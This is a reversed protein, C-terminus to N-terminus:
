FEKVSAANGQRFRSFSHTVSRQGEPPRQRSAREKKWTDEGSWGAAGGRVGTSGV